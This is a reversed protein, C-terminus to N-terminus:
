RLNQIIKKYELFMKEESFYKKVYNKQKNIIKKINNKNLGMISIIKKTISTVNNDFFFGIKKKENIIEKLGTVRSALVPVSAAFAQLVSISMAEGRSAQIYLDIKNFWKKLQFNDLRGEFNIQNELYHDKIIKKLMSIKPGYGAFTLIINNKNIKILSKIILEQLRMENIRGAMGICFQKNSKIKKNLSFFNIDVGNNIFKLNKKIKIKKLYYNYNKKSVTIIFNFFYKLIIDIIRNSIKKHVFYANHDIFVIKKRYILKYFISPFIQNNNLMIIDPKFKKIRLFIILWFLFPLFRITKVYEMSIKLKSIRSKYSDYLVPGTLLIQDTWNSNLNKKVISHVVDFTGGLDSYLIHLVKV